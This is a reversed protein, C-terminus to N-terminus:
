KGLSSEREILEPQGLLVSALLIVAVLFGAVVGVSAHTSPLLFASLWAVGFALTVVGIGTLARRAGNAVRGPEDAIWLLLALVVLGGLLGASWTYPAGLALIGLTLLVVLVAADTQRGASRARLVIAGVAGAGGIPLSLFWPFSTLLGFLELAVVLVAAPLSARATAMPRPNPAAM